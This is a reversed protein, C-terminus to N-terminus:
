YCNNQSETDVHVGYSDEFIAIKYCKYIKWIGYQVACEM